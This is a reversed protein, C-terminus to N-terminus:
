CTGCIGTDDSPNSPATGSVPQGETGSDVEHISQGDATLQYRYLLHAAPMHEMPEADLNERLPIKTGSAASVTPAASAPATCSRPWTPPPTACRRWREWRM